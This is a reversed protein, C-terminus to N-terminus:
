HNLTEDYIRFYFTDKDQFGARTFRDGFGRYTLRVPEKWGSFRVFWRRHSAAKTLFGKRFGPRRTSVVEIRIREPAEKGTADEIARSCVFLSSHSEDTYTGLPKCLHLDSLVFQKSRTKPPNKM